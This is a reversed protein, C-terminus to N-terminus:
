PTSFSSCWFVNQHCVGRKLFQRFLGDCADPECLGDDYLAPCIPCSARAAGCNVRPDDTSSVLLAEVPFGQKM